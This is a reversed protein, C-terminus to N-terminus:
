QYLVNPSSYQIDGCNSSSSDSVSKVEILPPVKEDGISSLVGHVTAHFGHKKTDDQGSCTSCWGIRRGLAILQNLGEDDVRWGRGYLGEKNRPEVLIEFPGATCKPVDLLCHYSHKEPGKLTEVKNNDLLRGKLICLFDMVYGQVCVEDGLKPVVTDSGSSEIFSILFLLSALSILYSSHSRTKFYVLM